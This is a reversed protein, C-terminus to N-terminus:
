RTWITRLQHCCLFMLVLFSFFCFLHNRGKMDAVASKPEIFPNDVAAPNHDQRFIDIM